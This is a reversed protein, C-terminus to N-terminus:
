CLGVATLKEIKWSSCEGRSMPAPVQFCAVLDSFSIFTDKQMIQMTGAHNYKMFFLIHGQEVDIASRFDPTSTKETNRVFGMFIPADIVSPRAVTNLM